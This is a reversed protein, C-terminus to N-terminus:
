CRMGAEPCDDDGRCGAAAAATLRADKQIMAIGEPEDDILAMIDIDEDIPEWSGQASGMVCAVQLCVALTALLRAM